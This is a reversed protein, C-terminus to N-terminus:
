SRYVPDHIRESQTNWIWREPYAPFQSGVALGLRPEVSYNHNLYFQIFHLGSNLTLSEGIRYSWSGFAQLTGASIKEDVYTHEYELNEYNPNEPDSYWNFLTDSNWGMFSDDWTM